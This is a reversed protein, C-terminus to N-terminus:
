KGELADLIKAQKLHDDSALRGPPPHFNVEKGSGHKEFEYILALIDPLQGEPYERERISDPLTSFGRNLWGVAEERKTTTEHQRFEYPTVTFVIIRFYGRNATFLAKIYEELSFISPSGETLWRKRHPSGDSRIRELQTVMAFGGPIEHYKKRVYGSNSLAKSLKQEITEPNKREEFYSNINMDTSAQPPPWPFGQDSKGRQEIKLDAM